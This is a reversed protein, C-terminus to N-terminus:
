IEEFSLEKGVALKNKVRPYQVMESDLATNQVGYNSLTLQECM